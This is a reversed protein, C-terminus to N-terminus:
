PTATGNTSGLIRNIGSILAAFSPSKPKELDLHPAISTAWELKERGRCAAPNHGLCEALREWAGCVADPDHNGLDAISATNYAKRVAKTDAIFWSETEEIAIRFLCTPPKTPLANYLDLMGAKLKRCDDDDADVVVVVAIEFDGQTQQGMNKLKIPLQSLLADDGRAPPKLRNDPTPLKGKGRHPHIRFHEGESLKFRRTLVEKIAPVDSSGECLVEIFKM